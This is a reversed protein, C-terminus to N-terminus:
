EAGEAIVKQLAFHLEERNLAGTLQAILEKDRAVRSIFSLLKLHEDEDELPTLILFILRSPAGDISDFDLGERHVGVTLVPHMTDAAHTHPVAVGNVLGSSLSQERAIIDRAITEPNDLLGVTQLGILLEHIAEDRSSAVLPLCLASVPALSDLAIFRYGLPRFFPAGDLEWLSQIEQRLMFGAEVVLRHTLLLSHLDTRFVLRCPERVLTIFVTDCRLYFSRQEGSFENIFYGEAKFQRLVRHLLLDTLERNVVEFTLVQKEPLRDEHRYGSVPSRMARIFLLPSLIVSGLIMVMVASFIDEGIYGASIGLGAIIIPLEGRPMMGLGIRLAGRNNFGTLRAMGGCGILKALLSALLFVLGLILVDSRFLVGPNIYMGMVIFFIPVFFTHFPKLAHLVAFNLETRSLSLGVIYAGIIMALGAFEFLGGLLLAIALATVAVQGTDGLRKLGRSFRRALLVGGVTFTAWLGINRVSMWGIQGWDITGGHISIGCVSMGISLLIVGLVDDFVAGALMTVGEPSDMKRMESLVRVAIDLSTATGVIGLMVVRPDTFAVGLVGRGVLLGAALSVIVGGAGVSLGAVSFRRLLRLDTELGALFLMVVSAIMTFVQLEIGVPLLSGSPIPFVGGSFGPLGLGGLVHPGILVGAIIEGLMTSVGLRSCLLAVLRAIILILGLRVAVFPMLSPDSPGTSASLAMALLLFGIMFILKSHRM